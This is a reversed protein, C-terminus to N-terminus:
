RKETGKEPSSRPSGVGAEFQDLKGPSVDDLRTGRQALRAGVLRRQGSRVSPADSVREGWRVRKESIELSPALSDGDDRYALGVFSLM